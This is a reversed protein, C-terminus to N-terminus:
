SESTTSLGNQLVCGVLHRLREFGESHAVYDTAGVAIAAPDGGGPDRAFLLVPTSATEPSASLARVLELARRDPSLVDLIVLDPQQKLAEVYGTDMATTTVEYGEARFEEVLRDGEANAGRVLLLRSCKDPDDLYRNVVECVASSRTPKAVFERAGLRLGAEAVFPFASLIIVPIRRYEHSQQMAALFELGGMKPMMVDLLILDPLEEELRELGERGDGAEIVHYGECGLTFGLARRTNADDDVVLVTGRSRQSKKSPRKIPRGSSDRAEAAGDDSGEGEDDEFPPLIFVFHSGGGEAEQVWIRGGLFEIIGRCIPLGLGTGQPKDRLTDGIQKFRKFINEREAEPIGPGQDIVEIRHGAETVTGRLTVVGGDPSFKVANSLLNVFVQQLKDRDGRVLLAHDPLDIELEVRRSEFLPRMPQSSMRAIEILDVSSLLWELKGSEIKALDLVDNILRTLRESETNIITLFEHTTERDQSWQDPPCSLLIESFSRISTLPTRLEHSVNSIFQDKLTDVERLRDYAERLADEAKRRSTVDRFVVFSGNLSGSEHLVPTFSAELKIAHGKLHHGTLDVGKHHEDLALLKQRGNEPTAYREFPQEETESAEYGLIAQAGQNWTRVNGDPTLTVIGDAANAILDELYSRTAALEFTRARVKEELRKHQEEITRQNTRLAWAMQNFAMALEGSEDSSRVPVSVDFNGRKIARAEMALERLPRVWRRMLLVVTCASFLLIAIAVTAVRWRIRELDQTTLVAIEDGAIPMQLVLRVEGLKKPLERTFQQSPRPDSKASSRGTDARALSAFVRGSADLIDARLAGAQIFKQVAARGGHPDGQSLYREGDQVLQELMAGAEAPMTRQRGQGLAHIFLFSLLALAAAVVTVMSAAAKVTLSRRPRRM